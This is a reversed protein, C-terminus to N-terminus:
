NGAPVDFRLLCHGFDVVRQGPQPQLGPALRYLRGRGQLALGAEMLGRMHKSAASVTCGVVQAIDSAGLPEGDCLTTLIKWKSVSGLIPILKERSLVPVTPSPQGATTNGM